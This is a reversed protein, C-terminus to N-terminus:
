ARKARGAMSAPMMGLGGVLAYLAIVLMGGRWNGGGTLAATIPATVTWSVYMMISTFSSAVLPFEPNYVANLHYFQPIAAGSLLGALAVCIFVPLPSALVAGMAIAVAAGTCGAFLTRETKIGLRPTLVRSITNAIWFLSLALAANGGYGLGTSMYRVIWINIGNQYASYGFISLFLLWNERKGVYNRLDAATPPRKIEVGSLLTGASKMTLAYLGTVVLAFVSLVACVGTWSLNGRLSQLIVPGALGGVGFCAHLIGMIFGNGPYLTAVQASCLSSLSGFGIGFLAYLLLFTIFPPAFALGAMALTICLLSCLLLVHNKVRGCLFILTIVALAAGASQATSIAGQGVSTLGYFDIHDSLLVGQSSNTAQSLFQMLCLVILYLLIVNAATRGKKPM